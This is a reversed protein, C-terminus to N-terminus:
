AGYYRAHNESLHGKSRIYSFLDGGNIFDTIFYLRKTTQFAYHLGLIYPNSIELLIQREQMTSDILDSDILQKKNYVKM